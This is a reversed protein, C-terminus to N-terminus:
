KEYYDRAAAEMLLFFAQGEPAVYARNFEPLGCVGQVFGYADVKGYAAERARDAFHLYGADLNGRAVGRYITYALMQAFNTDVFSGPNDLVDHFLGDPRQHALCGDVMKRVFEVLYRKEAERDGPLMSIVRTVGAMAWGNGVGWFDRRHFEGKDDDWIHSHMGKGEDFLAKRYGVIQKLAEDFDGMAALFPPAMYYADVWIQNIINFHYLTGDVSRPARHKLYFYLRDAAHRLFDDGTERAALVLAEGSAAPDDISRNLDMVGIRGDPADRYAAARALLFATDRDGLELFAQAVVGQEWQFRQFAMSAAKVREIARLDAKM